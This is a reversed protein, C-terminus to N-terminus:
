KVRDEAGAKRSKQYAINLTKTTTRTNKWDSTKYIIYIMSPRMARSYADNEIDWESWIHKNNTETKKKQYKVNRTQTMEQYLPIQTHKHAFTTSLAYIFENNMLKSLKTKPQRTEEKKIPMLIITSVGFDIWVAVVAWLVGAWYKKGRSFVVYVM